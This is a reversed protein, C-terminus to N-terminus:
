HRGSAVPSESTRAGAETTDLILETVLEPADVAIVDMRRALSELVPEWM